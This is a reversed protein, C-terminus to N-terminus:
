FTRRDSNVFDVIGLFHNQILRRPMRGAGTIGTSGSVDLDAILILQPAGGAATRQTAVFINHISINQSVLIPDRGRSGRESALFEKVGELAELSFSAKHFSFVYIGQKFRM